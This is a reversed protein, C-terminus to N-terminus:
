CDDEDEDDAGIEVAAEKRVARRLNRLHQRAAMRYSSPVMPEEALAHILGLALEVSSQEPEDGEDPPLSQVASHRTM